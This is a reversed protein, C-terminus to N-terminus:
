GCHPALNQHGIPSHVDRRWRRYGEVHFFQTPQHDIRRWLISWEAIHLLYWIPSGKSIHDIPRSGQKLLSAKCSSAAARAAAQCSTREPSRVRTPITESESLM